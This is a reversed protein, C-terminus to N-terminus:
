ILYVGVGGPAAIVFEKAYHITNVFMSQSSASFKDSSTITNDQVMTALFVYVIFNPLAIGAPLIATQTFMHRLPAYTCFGFSLLDNSRAFNDCCPHYLGDTAYQRFLPTM